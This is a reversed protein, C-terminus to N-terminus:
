NIFESLDRRYADLGGPYIKSVIESTKQDSKRNSLKDILLLFADKDLENMMVVVAVHAFAYFMDGENLFKQKFESYSLDFLDVIDLEGIMKMTRLKGKDLGPVDSIWGKKKVYRMNEFHEAFGETLWVPPSIRNFLMSTFHHSIEHFIIALARDIGEELGLIIATKRDSIYFGTYGAKFYDDSKNWKYTDDNPYLARLYEYGEKQTKFIVLRVDLNEKLGLNSYFDSMYESMSRIKALNKDSLEEGEYEIHLQTASPSSSINQACINITAFLSIMLILRKM